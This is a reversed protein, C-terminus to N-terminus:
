PMSTWVSVTVIMIPNTATKVKATKVQRLKSEVKKTTKTDGNQGTATKVM